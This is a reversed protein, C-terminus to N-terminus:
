GLALWSTTIGVIPVLLSFPAVRSAPYRGMLYTWLGLGVITALVVIYVLGALAILGSHAGISTLAKWGADPGELFASLAFLPIP